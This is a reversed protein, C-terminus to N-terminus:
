FKPSAFGLASGPDCVCERRNVQVCHEERLCFQVSQFVAALGSCCIEKGECGSRVGAQQTNGAMSRSFCSDPSVDQVRQRVSRCAKDVEKTM